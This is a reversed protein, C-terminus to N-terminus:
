KSLDVYKGVCQKFSPLNDYMSPSDKPLKDLFSTKRLNNVVDARSIFKNNPEFNINKM